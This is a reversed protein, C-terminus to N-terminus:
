FHNLFEKEQNTSELYLEYSKIADKAKLIENDLFEKIGKTFFFWEGDSRSEDFKNHFKSENSKHPFTFIVKIDPNFTKGAKVRDGLHTEKGIKIKDRIPDLTFYTFGDSKGVEYKLTGNDDYIKLINGDSDLVCEYIPDSKISETFEEDTLDDVGNDSDILIFKYPNKDVITFYPTKAHTSMGDSNNSYKLLITYLTASPTKGNSVILKQRAIENWIETHSMPINRESLIQVAADKFTMINQKQNMVFIPIIIPNALYNVM